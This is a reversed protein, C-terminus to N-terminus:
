RQSPVRRAHKLSSHTLAPQGLLAAATLFGVALFLVTLAELRADRARGEAAAHLPLSQAWESMWDFYLYFAVVWRGGGGVIM